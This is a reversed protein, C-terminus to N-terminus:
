FMALLLAILAVALVLIDTLVRPPPAGPALHRARVHWAVALLLTIAAPFLRTLSRSPVSIFGLAPLINVAIVSLGVPTAMAGMVILLMGVARRRETVAPASELLEVALVYGCEPCRIDTLQTLNYGCSPCAAGGTDLRERLKEAAPRHPHPQM